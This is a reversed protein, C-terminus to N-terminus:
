LLCRSHWVPQENKRGDRLTWLFLNSHLHLRKSLQSWFLNHREGSSFSLVLLSFSQVSHPHFRISLSLPTSPRTAAARSSIHNNYDPFPMHSASPTYWKRTQCCRSAGHYFSAESKLPPNHLLVQRVNLGLMLLISRISVRDLTLFPFVWTYFLITAFFGVFTTINILAVVPEVNNCSTVRSVRWCFNYHANATGGLLVFLIQLM